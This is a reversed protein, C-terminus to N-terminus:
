RGEAMQRNGDETETEGRESTGMGFEGNGSGCELDTMQKKGDDTTQGRGDVSKGDETTQRRYDPKGRSKRWTIAYIKGWFNKFSVGRDRDCDPSQYPIGAFSKVDYM